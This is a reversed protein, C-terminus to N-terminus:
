GDKKLVSFQASPEKKQRSAIARKGTLRDLETVLPNIIQLFKPLNKMDISKVRPLNVTLPNQHVGNVRFEYHLHPGNALGSKGVYGIVQGQAVRKGKRIGRAYKHLHAYLTSYKGGHKLVITRGFGGKKAVLTVTGDGTAKIPTGTSAAYDVGKHARIKNLIPHKRKLNFRSSIRALELPTRLFAKRMADGNESYYDHRGDEHSYRLARLAVGRNIFEAAIIPGDTVKVGDKYQETYILTFSDGERIDLAFDIDWGYISILQMILKDSLGVRKASLFLSDNIIAKSHKVLSELEENILEAQFKGDKKTILLSKTLNIEYKLRELKNENIYFDLIQGPQLKKLQSVEKGLSIINYLSNPSLGLRSFILALSDGSKVTVRQSLENSHLKISESLGQSSILRELDPTREISKNLEDNIASNKEIINKTGLKIPKTNNESALDQQIPFLEIKSLNSILWYYSYKKNTNLMLWASILILIICFLLILLTRHSRVKSTLTEKKYDKKIYNSYTM